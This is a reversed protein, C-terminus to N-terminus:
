RINGPLKGSGIHNEVFHQRLQRIEHIPPATHRQNIIPDCAL